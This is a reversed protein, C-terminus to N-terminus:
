YPSPGPLGFHGRFFAMAEDKDQENANEPNTGAARATWYGRLKQIQERYAKHNARIADNGVGNQTLVLSDFFAKLRHLAESYARWTRGGSPRCFGGIHRLLPLVKRVVAMTEEPKVEPPFRGPQMDGLRLVRGLFELEEDYNASSAQDYWLLVDGARHAMKTYADLEARGVIRWWPDETEGLKTWDVEELALERMDLALADDLPLTM